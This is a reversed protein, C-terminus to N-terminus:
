GGCNVNGAPAWGSKHGALRVHLWTRAWESDSQPFAVPPGFQKGGMIHVMTQDAAKVVLPAKADPAATIATEQNTACDLGTYDTILTREAAVAPAAALFFCLFPARFM